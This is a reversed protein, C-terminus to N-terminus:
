TALIKWKEGTQKQLWGNIWSPIQLTSYARSTPKPHLGYADTYM